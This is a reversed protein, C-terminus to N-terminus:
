GSPPSLQNITRTPPALTQTPITHLFHTRNSPVCHPTFVLPKTGAEKPTNSTVVDQSYRLRKDRIFCRSFPFLLIHSHSLLVTLLSFSLFLVILLLDPLVFAPCPLTLILYLSVHGCSVIYLILLLPVCVSRAVIAFADWISINLKKILDASALISCYSSIVVLFWCTGLCVLGRIIIM